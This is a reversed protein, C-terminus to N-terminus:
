LTLKIRRWSNQRRRPTDVYHIVGKLLLENKLSSVADVDDDFGFFEM